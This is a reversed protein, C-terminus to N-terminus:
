LDNQPECFSYTYESPSKGTIKKFEVSFYKYDTYGCLAAIEKLTYLGSNILSEAHRIRTDIVYKKPSINFEKKFLKRFYVDSIFSKKAAGVLSFDPNLCNKQIYKVSNAIKSNILNKTNEEYCLAFIEYLIASAKHKYSTSKQGWCLAIKKFLEATKEKEEPYFYEIDKSHYSLSNFHIVIMDDIRSIKTYDTNAPFFTVSNDKLEFEKQHTKIIADGEIRFSLADFNRSHNFRNFNTQKLYFVDLIEFSISEQEFIM